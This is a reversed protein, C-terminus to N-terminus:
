PVVDVQPTMVPVSPTLTTTKVKLAAADVSQGYQDAMVALWHEAKLYQDIVRDIDAKTLNAFAQDRQERQLLTKGRQMQSNLMAHINREDELSTVRQKLIDAQAAAVEQETVGNKRLDSMAQMVARQIQEAKGASYNASVSLSGVNNVSDLSLDSSFGYVLGQAERLTKALRSSLQSGGLIHNMVILAPADPHDVGVPLTLLSLYFGFERPEAQVHWQQAAYGTYDEGIHAYAAPKQWPQLRQQLISQIAVADVQGTVAVQAHQAGLVRNYLAVVDQRRLQQLALKAQEPEFHYRLDDPAYRETLRALSLGAVTQPETYPRNLSALQQSRILDFQSQSFNANQLLDLVFQLYEAFHEQKASVRISLINDELSAAASGGLAISKDAISQLDYQDTGRLLLYTMLSLAESQGKLSSADAFQLSITAYSKGDRTPSNFIAYQIPQQDKATLTLQGRQIKAESSKLRQASQPLYAQVQQQYTKADLLAEAALQTQSVSKTIPQRHVATNEPTQPKASTATPKLQAELRQQPQLVQNYIRNVQEPTLAMLQAHDQFYKRWNGQESVVYGSLMAGVSSSNSWFSDQNNAILQQVRKLETANFNQPQELTQKLAVDIAKEDMNPAYVAGAFIVQFDPELWTSVQINTAKGTEVLNQYLHGSPQLSLLPALINLAANLESNHLPNQEPKTPQLYLLFKAHQSGKQVSFQRQKLQSLDFAPVKPQMPIDRAPIAAFQQQVDKLVQEADFQGAIVMVANNPAYWTRYFQQLEPLQISKLEALDGIPPRGLAANGYLGKWIQDMLLAFPQDQRMERERKVIEIESPVFENKLVLKDMREAELLLMDRIAQPEPRLVNTYQTAYYSTSANNFLTNQDLRRQFEPAPINQTGKFALHELLHALGGKGKPDNLAGTRYITNMYVKNDLPNPALIVRFGNDLQYESINRQQQVLQAAAFATQTLIVSLSTVVIGYSWIRM